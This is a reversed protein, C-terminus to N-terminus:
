WYLWEVMDPHTTGCPPRDNSQRKRRPWGEEAASVFVADLGFDGGFLTTLASVVTDALEHRCLINKAPLLLVAPILCQLMSLLLRYASSDTERKLYGVIHSMLLGLFGAALAVVIPRAPLGLAWNSLTSAIMGLAAATQALCLFPFVYRREVTRLDASPSFMDHRLVQFYEHAALDSLDRRLFGDKLWRDVDFRRAERGVVVRLIPVCSLLAAFFGLVGGVVAGARGTAQGLLCGGILGLPLLVLCVAVGLIMRWLQRRGLNALVFVPFHWLKYYLIPRSQPPPNRCMVARMYLVLVMALLAGALVSIGIEDLLVVPTQSPDAAALPVPM